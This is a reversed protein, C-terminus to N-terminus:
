LYRVAEGAALPKTYTSIMSSSAWRGQRMIAAAPASNKTM